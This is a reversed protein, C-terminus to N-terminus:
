GTGEEDGLLPRASPPARPPVRELAGGPILPPSSGLPSLPWPGSLSGLRAAEVGEQPGVAGGEAPLTQLYLPARPYPGYTPGAKLEPLGGRGAGVVM